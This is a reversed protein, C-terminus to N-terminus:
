RIDIIKLQANKEGRFMNMELNAMVSVVSGFSFDIKNGFGFAIADIVCGDKELKFKAHQGDNGIKSIKQVTMNRIVFVPQKNGAGFPKLVELMDVSTLNLHRGRLECDAELVPILPNNDLIEKAYANIKERFEDVKTKDIVLGAALEHGGFKILVDSCANLADYLSFGELSRGSGKYNGDASPSILICPRNYKKTLRSSVIGVVGHHWKKNALVLVQDDKYYKNVMREAEHLIELEIEQRKRNCEELGLAIQEAETKDNTLFLRVAKSADELRGAANIKPAIQFGVKTGDIEKGELNALRLLEKFGLNQTNSIKNLGIDCLVRNEGTLPAIDAITGLAVFEAYREAVVSMEEKEFLLAQCLKLAVGVGALCKDPYTCDTRKPDIVGVADPLKEGCEHHDTVILDVGVTKAYECEEVATIGCDVSIILKTGSEALYKVAAKSMGYGENEREPIYYIVDANLRQLCDTLIVSATIGDADYDGYVTIKENNEIAKYVREVANKMDSFLFPSHYENISKDLFTKAQEPSFNRVALIAAVLRNAGTRNVIMDIQEASPTEPLVWKNNM